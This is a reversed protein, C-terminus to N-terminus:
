DRGKNVAEFLGDNLEKLCEKSCVCCGSNIDVYLTLDDCVVCKGKYLTKHLYLNTETKKKCTKM